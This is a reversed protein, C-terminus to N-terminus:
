DISYQAFAPFNVTVTSLATTLFLATAIRKVGFNKNGTSM